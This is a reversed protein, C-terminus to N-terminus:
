TLTVGFAYCSQPPLDGISGADGAYFYIIGPAVETPAGIEDNTNVTNYETWTYVYQTTSLNSTALSVYEGGSGDDRVVTLVHIGSQTRLYGAHRYEGTSAIGTLYSSIVGSTYNFSDIVVEGAAVRTYFFASPGPTSFSHRNEASRAELIFVDTKHNWVFNSGTNNSDKYHFRYGTTEADDFQMVLKGNGAQLRVSAVATGNTLATGLQGCAVPSSDGVSFKWFPGGAPASSGATYIWIYGNSYDATVAKIGEGDFDHTTWSLGGAARVYMGDADFTVLRGDTLVICISDIGGPPVGLDHSITTARSYATISTNNNGIILDEGLGLYGYYDSGVRNTIAPDNWNASYLLLENPLTDTRLPFAPNLTGVPQNVPIQAGARQTVGIAAYVDATEPDTDTLSILVIEDGIGLYGGTGNQFTIPDDDIGPADATGIGTAPDYTLVEAGYTTAGVDAGVSQFDSASAVASFEGGATKAEHRAILRRLREELQARVTGLEPVIRLNEGSMTMTIGRVRYKFRGGFADTVYVYDGVNYDYYPLYLNEFVECTMSDAPTELTELTRDGILQATTSSDINTLSLFTERRGYTGTTSGTNEVFQGTGYETYVVNRVPGYVERNVRVANGAIRLVVPNDRLTTDEGREIAYQLTLDQDVWVDVAADAHRSAVEALTSGVREEITMLQESGWSVSNSDVSDTFGLSMEGLTGRAQAEDFFDKMITGVNTNSYMRTTGAGTKYIVANELLSRAGRGSVTLVYKDDTQEQSVKEIVGTWVYSDSSPGYSFKVFNGIESEGIGNYAPFNFTFSGDGNLDDSWTINIANGLNVLPTTGNRAFLTAGVFYTM